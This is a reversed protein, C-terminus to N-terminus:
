LATDSIHPFREPDSAPRILLLKTGRPIWHEELQEVVLLDTKYGHSKTKPDTSHCNDNLELQAPYIRCSM